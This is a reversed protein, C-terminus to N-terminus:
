NPTTNQITNNNLQVNYNRHNISCVSTKRKLIIIIRIGGLKRTKLLDFGETSKYNYIKTKNPAAQKKETQKNSVNPTYITQILSSHQCYIISAFFHFLTVTLQKNKTLGPPM